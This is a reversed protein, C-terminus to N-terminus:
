FGIQRGFGRTGYFLLMMPPSLGPLITVMLPGTTRLAVLKSAYRRWLSLTCPIAYLGATCSRFATTLDNSESHLKFLVTGVKTEKSDKFKAGEMSRLPFRIKLSFPLSPIELCLRLSFGLSKKLTTFRLM